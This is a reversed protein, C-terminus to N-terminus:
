FAQMCTYRLSRVLNITSNVWNIKYYMVIHLFCSIKDTQMMYSIYM